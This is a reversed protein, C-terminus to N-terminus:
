NMNPGPPAGHEGGGNPDSTAISRLVPAFFHSTGSPVSPGM